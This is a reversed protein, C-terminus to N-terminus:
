VDDGRRGHVLALGHRGNASELLTESKRIDDVESSEFVESTKKMRIIM